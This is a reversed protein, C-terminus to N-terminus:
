VSNPQLIVEPYLVYVADCDKDNSSKLGCHSNLETIHLMFFSFITLGNLRNLIFLCLLKLNGATTNM